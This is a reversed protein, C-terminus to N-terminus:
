LWFIKLMLCSSQTTSHLRKLFNKSKYIFLFLYYRKRENELARVPLYGTLIKTWGQKIYYLYNICKENKILLGLNAHVGFVLTSSIGPGVFVSPLKIFSAPFNDSCFVELSEPLLFVIFPQLAGLTLIKSLLSDWRIQEETM